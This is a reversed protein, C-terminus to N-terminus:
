LTYETKPLALVNIGEKSNASSYCAQELLYFLKL